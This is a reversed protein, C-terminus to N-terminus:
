PRTAAEIMRSTVGYVMTESLTAWNRFFAAFISEEISWAGGEIRSLQKRGTAGTSTGADISPCDM